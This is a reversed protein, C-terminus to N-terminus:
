RRGPRNVNAALDEVVPCETEAAQALARECMQLYERLADRFHDLERRRLDLEALKRGLLDRVRRCRERGGHERYTVLERIERLTLGHAQAQKIFRIRDVTGVDYQRFGGQTRPARPLLGKREYYRVADPTLGSADALQGIRLTARKADLARKM